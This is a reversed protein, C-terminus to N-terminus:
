RSNRVAILLTKFRVTNRLCRMLVVALNTDELAVTWAIVNVPMPLVEKV